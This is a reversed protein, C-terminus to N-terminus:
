PYVQHNINEAIVFISSESNFNWKTQLFSCNKEFIESVRAEM